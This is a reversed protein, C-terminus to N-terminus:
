SVMNSHTFVWPWPNEMTMNRFKPGAKSCTHVQVRSFRHYYSIVFNRYIGRKIITSDLGKSMAMRVGGGGKERPGM